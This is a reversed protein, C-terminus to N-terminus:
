SDQRKIWIEQTKVVPKDPTPIEIHQSSHMQAKVERMTTNVILTDASKKFCKASGGIRLDYDMSTGNVLFFGPMEEKAQFRWVKGENLYNTVSFGREDDELEDYDFSIGSSHGKTIYTIKRISKVMVLYDPEVSLLKGDASTYVDYVGTVENRTTESVPAPEAKSSAEAEGETLNDNTARRQEELQQIRENAEILQKEVESNKKQDVVGSCSALFLTITILILTKM